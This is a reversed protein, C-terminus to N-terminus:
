KAEEQIVEITLHTVIESHLNVNVKFNGLTKIEKVPQIQSPAIEVRFKLTLPELYFKIKKFKLSIDQNKSNLKNSFFNNFKSTNFGIFTLYLLILLLISLFIITFKKLKNIM